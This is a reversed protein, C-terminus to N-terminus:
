YYFRGAEDDFAVETSLVVPSDERYSGCNLRAM